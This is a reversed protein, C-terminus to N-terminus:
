SFVAKLAPLRRYWLLACAFQFLAIFNESKKEYRVMLGRCKSLWSITREVVWRRAPYKKKGNKDLTEAGGPRIHGEYGHEKVVQKSLANNYGADLCLHQPEKETAEPREVVISEITEELLLHDNINAPAVVVSLPGGQRDVLLSEKTGSKARDTPNPGIEDGGIPAKGLRGDASQWRWDVNGLEENEYVLLAWIMEFLNIEVWRQFTRHITSDDGYVKPIHNWQCGTRFKFILADLIKRCDERPRGTQKPPDYQDILKAIREWLDNPVEWITPMRKPRAM